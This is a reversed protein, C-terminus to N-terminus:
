KKFFRVILSILPGQLIITLIVGAFAWVAFPLHKKKQEQVYSLLASAVAFIIMFFVSNKILFIAKPLIGQSYFLQGATLYFIIGSLVLILIWTKEFVRRLPKRVAMVLLFALTQWQGFRSLWSGLEYKIIQFAAFILLFGLFEKLYLPYNAKFKLLNGRWFGTIKSASFTKLFYFLNQGMLFLLAPIFINILLAFSPFYPLASRWYYKLPLLLSFVFFLKADGASWLDFYWLVYGVILTIASNILVKLIYSPLVFTLHKSYIQSLFPAIFSWILFLVYIGLSWSLGLIIWKNKIKGEKFDQYSTVLGILFLVPLFLYDLLYNFSM